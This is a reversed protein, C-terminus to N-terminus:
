RPQERADATGRGKGATFAQFSEDTSERQALYAKLLAEVRSPCEEAKM